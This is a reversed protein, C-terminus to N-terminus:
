LIVDRENDWNARVSITQAIRHVIEPQLRKSYNGPDWKGNGNKDELIQIHYTGPTILKKQFINNTLPYGEVEGKENVLQLVPHQYKDLNQFTLKISGYDSENKTKFRLTDNQALTKGTSDTVANKLVLLDYATSGVWDYHLFINKRTSDMTLFQGPIRNLLTDTIYIAASDVTQIEHNFNISVPSLLDQSSEKVATTYKLEEEQKPASIEPLPKEETYAFLRINTDGSITPHVTSDAFAFLQTPNNYIFQGGEDKIAFLAYNGPSLNKFLFQGEKNLKAIYDPKQKYVASDRLDAYLTVTLTSDVTGSEALMVTGGLQLSDIYNGTSFVYDFGTLPNNENLDRISKGFQISYTTNPRLTDFLKVTITKLKFDIFPTKKPLPSVIVNQLPNDLQIYEDFVLTIKNAKFNVAHNSPSAQMLVPPLSDKPGGIPMGIQACGGSFFIVTTYFISAIAVAFFISHKKIM